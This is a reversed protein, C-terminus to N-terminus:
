SELPKAAGEIPSPEAFQVRRYIENMPVSVDLSAFRVSEALDITERFTWQEDDTREYVVVRPQDHDVLVYEKLSPITRYHRFKTSADCEATSPSLVEIVLRPNLLNFFEDAAFEPSCAVVVDPYVYMGTPIRVRMDNSYADCPGDKLATSIERGLNMVILNHNQSAGSIAFAEGRFYESRTESAAEALLYERETLCPQLIASM